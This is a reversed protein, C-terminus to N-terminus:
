KRKGFMYCFSLGYNIKNFGKDPLIRFDICFKDIDIGIGGVASVYTKSDTVEYSLQNLGRTNGTFNVPSRLEPGVNIRITKLFKFGVLVPVRIEEFKSTTADFILNVEPQIFRSKKFHRVSFGFQYDTGDIQAKNNIVGINPGYNTIQSFCISSLFILIILLTHKM